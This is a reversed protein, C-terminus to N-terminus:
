SQLTTKLFRELARSYYFLLRSNAGYLVVDYKLAVRYFLM